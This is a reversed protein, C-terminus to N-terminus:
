ARRPADPTQFLQRFRDALRDFKRRGPWRPKRAAKAPLASAPLGLEALLALLMRLPKDLKNMAAIERVTDWDITQNQRLLMAADMVERICVRGFQAAAITSVAHALIHEHCPVRLKTGDVDMKRAAAVVEGGAMGLVGVHLDVLTFGDGAIVTASAGPTNDAATFGKTGFHRVLAKVDDPSVVVELRDVPRLDPDPYLAYANALDGIFVADVGSAAVIKAAEMMGLRAEQHARRSQKAQDAAILRRGYHAALPQMLFAALAPSIFEAMRAAELALATTYPPPSAREAQMVLPWIDGKFPQPTASRRM